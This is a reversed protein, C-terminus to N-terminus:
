HSRHWGYRANSHGDSLLFDCWSVRQSVYVSVLILHFEGTRWKEVAEAGNSAVDYKIKKKKMFTSLITQNIPNDLMHWYSFYEYVLISTGDVILVSIPPVIGSETSKASKKGGPSAASTGSRARSPTKRALSAPLPSKMSGASSNSQTSQQRVM